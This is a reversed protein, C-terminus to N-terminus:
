CKGTFSGKDRLFRINWRLVRPLIRIKDVICPHSHLFILFWITLLIGKVISTLTISWWVGALGLLGESSLILALPIRLGTFVLSVVTPPVTRGMGKFAGSSIIEICMFIQSVGLIRLYVAGEAIAEAEPIFIAFIFEPFILFLATSVSGVIFVMQFAARYSAWLRDWKKAGFNQGMFACLATSFGSATMWSLAEIQSGVRQVAIPLSGWSSIIRALVMAIVTFGASELAVPLGLHFVKKIHNIEIKKVFRFDPFPSRNTIFLMIFILTSSLQAIVTAIAAGKVGLEPFIGVGFILLPDLMMNMVLALGTIYFPTRSNGCGNYIGAFVVSLSSFLTGIAVLSLYNDAMEIVALDEFRFFGILRRSFILLVATWLLAMITILYLSSRAYERAEGSEKRGLSQSVSIEAGVKAILIFAFGFWTFFGATGVAAVAGSGLRGIWIMDTMNYAMQIFSTAMIPLALKLLTGRIEGQTLDTQASM